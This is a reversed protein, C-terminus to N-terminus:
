ALDRRLPLLSIFDGDKEFSTSAIAKGLAEDVQQRTRVPWPIFRVTEPDSHYFFQDAEDGKQMPRLILRETELIM